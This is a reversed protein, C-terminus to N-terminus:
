LTTPPLADRCRDVMHSANKAGPSVALVRELTEITRACDAGDYALRGLALARQTENLKRRLRSAKKHKPADKLISEISARADAFQGDRLAKEAATVAAGVDKKPAPKSPPAKAVKKPTRKRKPKAAVKKPKPKPKAAVKKPAPAPPRPPEPAVVPPAPAPAAVVPAPAPPTPPLVEAPVTAIPGDVAIPEPSPDAAFWAALAVSGCMALAVAALAVPSPRSYLGSAHMLAETVGSQAVDAGLHYPESGETSVASWEASAEHHATTEYPDADAAGPPSPLPLPTLRDAGLADDLAVILAEATQFRDKAKKQLCKLVISCVDDPLEPIRDQPPTPRESAQCHMVKMKNSGGFPPRGTLLEYLMAGLAYIDSRADVQEGRAQEPSMYEPTGFVMGAQTLRPGEDDVCKAIGFDLLKVHYRGPRSEMLIVNEPKLDRHVIGVEHAAALGQAIQTIIDVALAPALRKQERIEASLLNGPCYDLVMFFMGDPTRGFDHLSVLNPHHVRGYTMAENEFRLTLQADRAHREHLVKVAVKQGIRHHSGLYVTGMGGVGIRREIRYREAVTIGLLPDVPKGDTSNALGCRGCFRDGRPLDHDCRACKM